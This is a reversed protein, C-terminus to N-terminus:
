LDKNEIKEKAKYMKRVTKFMKDLFSKGKVAKYSEDISYVEIGILVIAVTKTAINEVDIFLRLLDGILVEDVVYVALILAIYAFTKKVLGERARISTVRGKLERTMWIAFGMDVLTALGVVTAVLAIPAFFVILLNVTLFMVGKIWDMTNDFYEIATMLIFYLKM